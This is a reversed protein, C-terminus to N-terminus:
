GFFSVSQLKLSLRQNVCCKTPQMLAIEEQPFSLRLEFLNNVQLSLERALIFWSVNLHCFIFMTFM